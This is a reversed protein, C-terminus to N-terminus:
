LVLPAKTNAEIICPDWDNHDDYFWCYNKIYAVMKMMNKDIIALAHKSWCWSVMNESALFGIINTGNIIYKPPWDDQDYEQITM